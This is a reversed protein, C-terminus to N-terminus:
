RRRPRRPVEQAPLGLGIQEGEEVHARARRFTVSQHQMPPGEMRAGKLLAGVEMIQVKPHSGWMSTWRGCGTAETRMPRTPPELTILLGMAAKEREVVHALDRVPSVNVGGSKVSIVVTQFPSGVVGDQFRHPEAAM